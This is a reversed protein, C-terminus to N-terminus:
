VGLFDRDTLSYPDDCLFNVSEIATGRTHTPKMDDILVQASALDWSGGLGPDRYVYFQYIQRPDAMAAAQAATTEIVVVQGPALGLIPALAEQFDVPRFRQRRIMEATVRARREDLTGTSPLDLVRDWDGITETPTRPDSELL